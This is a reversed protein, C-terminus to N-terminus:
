PNRGGPGSGGPGGRDADRLHVSTLAIFGAVKFLTGALSQIIATGGGEGMATPLVPLLVLEPIDGVRALMSRMILDDRLAALAGSQKYTTM